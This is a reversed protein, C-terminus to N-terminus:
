RLPTAYFFIADVATVARATFHCFHPPFLWSWGLMEQPGLVAFRCPESNQEDILSVRGGEILFFRNAPEGQRFILQGARFHTRMASRALTELAEAPLGNFLPMAGLAGAISAASQEKSELTLQM